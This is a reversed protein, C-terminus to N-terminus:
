EVRWYHRACYTISRHVIPVGKAQVAQQLNKSIQQLHHREAKLNLFTRSFYFRTWAMCIPPQATSFILPRM